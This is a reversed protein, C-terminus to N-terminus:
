SNWIRWSEEAQLVLMEYGNKITAGQQKGLSLFKTEDPNYVLDYLLHEKTITNYLLPPFDDIDPYMGLPTTNIILKHSSVIADTLDTYRYDGDTRSVVKYAIGLQQLAYQVAKSAGGTGLVLAHTHQIQLLPKLSNMFGIYDTNYGKLQNDKIDICNVAGIVKAADDIADLYPLVQEKYPITVNLGYLKPHHIILKPLEEINHIPFATYGADVGESDFRAHFYAPSFSHTLPYGILGYQKQM